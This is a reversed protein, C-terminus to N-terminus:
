LTGQEKVTKEHLKVINVLCTKAAFGYLTIGYRILSEFLSKFLIWSVSTPLMYKIKVLNNSVSRLKSNLKNIHPKFKCKSDVIVGLYREEESMQLDVCNCGGLGLYTGYFLCQRNHGKIKLRDMNVSKHPSKILMTKTENPFIENNYMYM